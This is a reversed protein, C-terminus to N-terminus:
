FWPVMANTKSKYEQWSKRINEDPSEDWRKELMPVGSVFRLLYTILLPSVILWWREPTFTAIFIGWWMTAEGFYNPHRTHRWLGSTMIGRKGTEINSKIFTDLQYDGIAEFLFGFVWVAVGIYFYKTEGAFLVVPSVIVAAIVAQLIFVQLLSRTYFYTKGNKMWLARWAAYRFDEPKGANKMYIRYSLRIGWILVLYTVIVKQTSVNENLFLSSIAAAMFGYSYCIDAISNDKKFIAFIFVVIAVLFVLVFSFM